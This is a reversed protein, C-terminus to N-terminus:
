KGLKDIEKLTEKNEVSVNVTTKLEGQVTNEIKNRWEGPALNCLAFVLAGVDPSYHKKTVTVRKNGDPFEEVKKEEFEYGLAKKFLANELKPVMSTRFEQLAKKVDEAFEPYKARWEHFQSVSCGASKCADAQSLGSRLGDLVADKIDNFKAM